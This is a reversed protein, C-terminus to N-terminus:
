NNQPITCFISSCFSKYIILLQFRETPIIAPIRKRRRVIITHVIKTKILRWPQGIELTDLAAKLFFATQLAM